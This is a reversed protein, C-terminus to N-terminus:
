PLDESADSAVVESSVSVTGRLAISISCPDKTETAIQRLAQPDIHEL